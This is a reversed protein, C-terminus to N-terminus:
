EVFEALGVSERILIGDWGNENQITDSCQLLSDKNIYVSYLVSTIELLMINMVLEM